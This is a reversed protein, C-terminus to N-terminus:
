KTTVMVPGRTGGGGSTVMVYPIVFGIVLVAVLALTIKVARTNM